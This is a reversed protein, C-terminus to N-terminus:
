RSKFWGRGPATFVLWLAYLQLASGVVILIGAGASRQFSVWLIPMSPVLALVFIFFVFALIFLVLLTIRAWNRGQGIKWYLLASVSWILVVRSVHSTPSRSIAELHRWNWITNLVALGLSLWLLFMAKDIEAPRRRQSLRTMEAM